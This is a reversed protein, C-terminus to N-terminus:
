DIVNYIIKELESLEEDPGNIILINKPTFAWQTGAAWQGNGAIMAVLYSDITDKVPNYYEYVIQGIDGKKVPTGNAGNKLIIAYQKPKNM